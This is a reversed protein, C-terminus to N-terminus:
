GAKGEAKAKAKEEAKAKAEAEKKEQEERAKKFAAVEDVFRIVTKGIAIEDGHELKKEATRSGNVKTGNGSGLDRMMVGDDGHILEIHRRSVSQDSLQLDVGPTRGIIMRVGKFRRKKGSDPGAIIELKIPPGAHTANADDAGEVEEEDGGGAAEDRELAPLAKTHAGVEPDLADLGDGELSRSGAVGEDEDMQQFSQGTHYDPAGEDLGYDSGTKYEGDDGDPKKPRPARAMTKSNREPDEEVRGKAAKMSRSLPNPVKAVTANAKEPDEEAAAPHPARAMTKSAREPDNEVDGTGRSVKRPPAM